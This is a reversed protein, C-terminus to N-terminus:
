LVANIPFGATKHIAGDKAIVLAEVNVLRDVLALGRAHGMVILATALADADCATPAVVSASALELPSVGTQPDLIHNLSHDATFTNMYDGSTALAASSLHAVLPQVAPVDPPQQIAIQWARTEPHGYANMDGGLEVLVNAFGHERLVDAGQDIIYGKAIGDLTIAMGAQQFRISSGIEIQRYDVLVRAAAVEDPSPLSGLRSSERYLRHVPEVTVDFAGGTLDGYAEARKLVDILAPDPDRYEGNANLQSLQSHDRFRSFVDELAQMRDFAATIAARAQPPDDSIVTLNAISGMLLRLEKIPAAASVQNATALGIGGAILVGASATISLFQRRSFQKAASKM